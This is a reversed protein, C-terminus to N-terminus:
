VDEPRYTSIMGPLDHEWNQIVIRDVSASEGCLARGSIGHRAKVKGLWGESAKFELVGRTIAEREALTRLMPGTVIMGRDRALKLFEVVAAEINEFKPVVEVHKRKMINEPIVGADDIHSQIAGRNSKVRNITGKGVNFHEAVLRESKGNDLMELAKQRQEINLTPKHSQAM